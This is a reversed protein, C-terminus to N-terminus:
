RNVNTAIVATLVAGGLFFGINIYWEKDKRYQFFEELKMVQTQYLEVRQNQIGILVDQQAILKEMTAYRDMKTRVEIEQEPSFLYGSCVAPTGEALYKVPQQCAAWSINFM